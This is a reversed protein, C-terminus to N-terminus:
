IRRKKTFTIIAISNKSSIVVTCNKMDTKNRQLEDFDQGVYMTFNLNHQSVSGNKLNQGLNLFLKTKIEYSPLKNESEKYTLVATILYSHGSNM